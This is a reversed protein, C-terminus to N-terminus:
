GYYATTAPYIVKIHTINLIQYQRKETELLCQKKSAYGVTGYFSGWNTQLPNIERGVFCVRQGIKSKLSEYDVRHKSELHKLMNTTQGKYPIKGRCLRCRTFTKDPVDLTGEMPPFGFYKWVISKAAVNPLVISDLASALFAQQPGGMLHPVQLQVMQSSIPSPVGPPAMILPASGEVAAVDFGSGSAVGGPINQPLVPMSQLLLAPSPHSSQMVPQLVQILPVGAGAGAGSSGGIGTQTGFESGGGGHKGGASLEEKLVSPPPQTPQFEPPAAPTSVAPLSLHQLPQGIAVSQSVSATPLQNRQSGENGAM